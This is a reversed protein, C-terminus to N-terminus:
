NSEGADPGAFPQVLNQERTLLLHGLDSYGTDNSGLRHPRRKLRDTGPHCLELLAQRAVLTRDDIIHQAVRHRFKAALRGLPTKTSRVANKLASNESCWSTARRLSAANALAKAPRTPEQTVDTRVPPLSM